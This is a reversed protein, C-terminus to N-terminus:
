NPCSLRLIQTRLSSKKELFKLLSDRNKWRTSSKTTCPSFKRWIVRRINSTKCTFSNRTASHLSHAHSKTWLSTTHNESSSVLTRRTQITIRPSTSRTSPNFRMCNTWFSTAFNPATWSLCPTLVKQWM